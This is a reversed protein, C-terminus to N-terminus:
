TRPATTAGPAPPAGRPARPFPRRAATTPPAPGPRSASRPSCGSSGPPESTTTRPTVSALGASSGSQRTVPALGAEALLSGPSPFRVRDEGIEAVLTAVTIAGAGPLSAFIAADPHRAVLEAIATEYRELIAGLQELLDALALATRMRARDTGASPTAAQAQLRGLPISADTRGSYGERHLFRALRAVTLRSAADPSPFRRLFALTISRDLSSWSTRSARTTASLSPGCSTSCAGISSSSASGIACSRRSSM